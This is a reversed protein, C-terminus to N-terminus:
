VVSLNFEKFRERWQPLKNLTENLMAFLVKNTKGYLKKQLYAAFYM